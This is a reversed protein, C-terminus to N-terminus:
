FLPIWHHIIGGAAVLAWLFPFLPAQGSPAYLDKNKETSNANEPASDEKINRRLLFIVGDQYGYKNGDAGLFEIAESSQSTTVEPPVSGFSEEVSIKETLRFSKGEEGSDDEEVLLRSKRQRHQMDKCRISCKTSSDGPRCLVIHAELKFTPNEAISFVNFSLVVGSNVDSKIFNVNIQPVPSSPCSDKVLQMARRNALYGETPIAYLDKLYVTLNWDPSTVHHIRHYIEDGHKIAQEIIKDTLDYDGYLGFEFKNKLTKATQNRVEIAPIPKIGPSSFAEERKLVCAVPM